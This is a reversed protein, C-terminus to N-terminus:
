KQIATVWEMNNKWPSRTQLHALLEVHNDFSIEPNKTSEEVVTAPTPNADLAVYMDAKTLTSSRGVHQLTEWLRSYYVSQAGSPRESKQAPHTQRTAALKTVVDEPVDKCKLMHPVVTSAATSLSERNSFFYRGEGSRALCHRCMLGPMGVTVFGRRGKKRLDDHTARCIVLQEMAAVVFDTLQTRDFATVVEASVATSASNEHTPIKAHETASQAGLRDLILKQFKDDHEYVEAPFQFASAFMDERNEVLFTILEKIVISANSLQQASVDTHHLMKPVVLLFRMLSDCRLTDIWTKGDAPTLGEAASDYLIAPAVVEFLTAIHRVIAKVPPLFESGRTELLDQEFRNLAEEVTPGTGPAPAKDSAACSVFM